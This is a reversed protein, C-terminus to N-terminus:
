MPKSGRRLLLSVVGLVLGVLGIAVFLLRYTHYAAYASFEEAPHIPGTAAQAMYLGAHGAEYQLWVFLLSMLM